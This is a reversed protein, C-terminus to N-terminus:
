RLRAPPESSVRYMTFTGEAMERGDPGTLEVREVLVTRGRRVPTATATVMDGPKAARLFHFSADLTVYSCGDALALLGACNDALSFLFGGHATGHCNLANPGVQAQVVARDEGCYVAQIGNHTVFGSEQELRQLQEGAMQDKTQMNSQREQPGVAAGQKQWEVCLLIGRKARRM